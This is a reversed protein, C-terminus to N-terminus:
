ADRAEVEIEMSKLRDVPACLMNLEDMVYFRYEAQDFQAKIENVDVKWYEIWALPKCRAITEKAGRLVDIEMGEVDIKLFDLKPLALEDLPIVEVKEPHAAAQDVLSYLGFDQPKGYDPKPAGLMGAM